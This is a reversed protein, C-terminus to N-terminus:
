AQLAESLGNGALTLLAAWAQVLLERRQEPEVPLKSLFLEVDASSISPFRRPVWAQLRVEACAIVEATGLHSLAPELIQSRGATVAPGIQALEVIALVPNSM